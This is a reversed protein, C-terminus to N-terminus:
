FIYIFLLVLFLGASWHVCVSVIAVVYLALHCGIDETLGQKSTDINRLGRRDVPQRHMLQLKNITNKPPGFLLTDCDMRSTNSAHM